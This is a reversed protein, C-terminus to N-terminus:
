LLLVWGLLLLLGLGLLVFLVLLRLLKVGILLHAVVLLLRLLWLLRLLRLLRLLLSLLHPVTSWRAFKLLAACRLSGGPVGLASWWVERVLLEGLLATGRGLLM